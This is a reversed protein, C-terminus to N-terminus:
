LSTNYGNVLQKLLTSLSIAVKTFLPASAEGKKKKEQFDSFCFM